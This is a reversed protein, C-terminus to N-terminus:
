LAYKQSERFLSRFTRRLFPLFPLFELTKGRLRKERVEAFDNRVGYLVRKKTLPHRVKGNISYVTAVYDFFSVLVTWIQCELDLHTSLPLELDIFLTLTTLIGAERRKLIRFHFFARIWWTFM